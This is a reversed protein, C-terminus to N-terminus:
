EHNLAEKMVKLNEKMIDFYDFKGNGIEMSDILLVKANTEKSITEIVKSSDHKSLLIIKINKDNIYNLVKDLQQFSPEGEPLIGSVSVQTFHYRKEMYSFIEHELIITKDEVNELTDDFLSQLDKIKHKLVLYNEHYDDENKSDKTIIAEYINDIQVEALYPDLWIHPDPHNDRLIPDINKSTDVVFLHENNISDITKDVWHELHFGNHIFIDSDEIKMRDQISPEYDHADSGKDLVNFVEVNDKGIEEVFFSIPYFSVSINLKKNENQKHCSTLGLMLLLIILTKKM